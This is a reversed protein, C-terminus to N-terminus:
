PDLVSWETLLFIFSFIVSTCLDMIHNRCIACNDVVIDTLFIDAVLFPWEVFRTVGLGSLCQMGSIDHVSAKTSSDLAWLYQPCVKKVEFRQKGEKGDKPEKKVEVPPDVDMDAMTFKHTSFPPPLPTISESRKSTVLTQKRLTEIVWESYFQQTGSAIESELMKWCDLVGEKLQAWSHPM